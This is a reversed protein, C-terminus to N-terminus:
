YNLFIIQMEKKKEQILWMWDMINTITSSLVFEVNMKKISAKLPDHSATTTIYVSARRGVISRCGISSSRRGSTRDIPIPLM